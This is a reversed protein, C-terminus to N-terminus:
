LVSCDMGGYDLNMHQAVHEVVAAAKPGFVQRWDSLGREGERKSRGARRVGGRWYHVLWSEAIALHYPFPLRDIFIFRYKRYCNQPDKFDHFETLLFRDYAAKALYEAMDSHTEILALDEGGHAGGPRILFPVHFAPLGLLEDRVMWRVDPVLLGPIDGFLEHARDRGTRAICGPPNLVPKGLRASLAKVSEVQGGDREVEGLTNFILDAEALADYSVGGLPADPQDPSVLILTATAFLAPDFLYRAPVHAAGVGGLVLITAEPHEMRGKRMLGQARASRNLLCLAEDDRRQRYLVRSLNEIANANTADMELIARCAQEVSALDAAEYAARSLHLLITIREPTADTPTHNLAARHAEAAEIFRHCDCLMMGRNDHAMGFNPDLELARDLALLAEEPQGLRDLSIAINNFIPAFDPMGAAARRFLDVADRDNGKRQLLQGLNNLTLPNDPDVDLHRLCVSEAEAIDSGNMLIMGLMGLANPQRPDTELVQRYLAEAQTLRGKRPNAFAAKLLAYPNDMSDGKQKRPNTVIIATLTIIGIINEFMSKKPQILQLPLLM